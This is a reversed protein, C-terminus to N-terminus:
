RRGIAARLEALPVPGRGHIPAITAVDLKLGQIQEYLTVADPAPVAPPPVGPAAPSFADAEVLIKPGKIYVLTYERTHTDGPTAYAIVTQKGDTLEHRDTVGVLQPTKPNGALSDPALAAPASAAARLYEVNSQHTVITAGEAVYARFGGSHDFHHHTTLLYKIPKGPVLRKAEAIVALSRKDTLPAEVVALHDAFEILVSHHSGGGLFWVGDAIKSSAVQVSPLAASAVNEPVALDVPTSVDVATVTLDWIPHGGQRVVIREPYQVSGFAKYGSYEVVLPTDGLVPNPLATAVRTVRHEGDLTGTVKFKGMATFSIEPAEETGGLTADTAAQAGKVFGHPTTWILLQREEASALQPAPGNAGVTWAKDGNVVGNQQQGGFVAEKFVMQERASRQTYNIARTYRTLERLPWPDTALLAQGFWGNTGIATITISDAPGLAKQAEALVTQATRPTACALAIGLFAVVVLQRVM